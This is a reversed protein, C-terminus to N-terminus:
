ESTAKHRKHPFFFKLTSQLPPWGQEQLDVMRNTKM